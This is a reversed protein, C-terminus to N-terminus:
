KLGAKHYFALLLIVVIVIVISSFIVVPISNVFLALIRSVLYFSEQNDSVYNNMYDAINSMSYSTDSFPYYDDNNPNHLYVSSEPNEWISCDYSNKDYSIYFDNYRSIDTNYKKNIFGILQYDTYGTNLSNSGILVNYTSAIFNKQTSDYTSLDNQTFDDFNTKTDKYRRYYYDGNVIFSTSRALGNKFVPVCMLGYYNNMNITEMNTPNIVESSNYNSTFPETSYFTMYYDVGDDIEFNLVLKVDKITINTYNSISLSLNFKDMTYGTYGFANSLDNGAGNLYYNQTYEVGSSDDYTILLYPRALSNSEASKLFSYKFILDDYFPLDYDFVIQKYESSNVIEDFVYPYEAFVTDSFNSIFPFESSRIFSYDDGSYKSSVYVNDNYLIGYKCNGAWKLNYNSYYPFWFTSQSVLMDDFSYDGSLASSYKITNIFEFNPYKSRDYDRFPDTEPFERTRISDLDGIKYEKLNVNYRYTAMPTTDTNWLELYSENIDGGFHLVKDIDTYFIEIKLSPNELHAINLLILYRMDNNRLTVSKLADNIDHLKSSYENLVSNYRSFDIELLHYQQPQVFSDMGYHENFDPIDDNFAKVYNLNIMFIMLLSIM